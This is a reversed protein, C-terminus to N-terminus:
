PLIIGAMMLGRKGGSGRHSFLTERECCTCLRSEYVNEVGAERLLAANMGQLDAMYRGERETPTIFPLLAEARESAEFASVFPDDVEYCCPHISPGIAARISGLEAGLLCMKRVAETVIAGATGRWGSHVAAIVGNKCDELLIPVCDAVKVTLLLGRENTVFGDCEFYQGLNESKVTLVKNSHIQKASFARDSTATLSSFFRKRNESVDEGDGAGLDLTGRHEDETVGGYRTSFGHPCRLAKCKILPLPGNTIEFDAGTKMFLM